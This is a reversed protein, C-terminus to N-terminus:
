KKINRLIKKIREESLDTALKIASLEFGNKHMNIVTEEKGEERGEARGEERGEVIGKQYYPMVLDTIDAEKKVTLRAM